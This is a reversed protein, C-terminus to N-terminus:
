NHVFIDRGSSTQITYDTDACVGNVDLVKLSHGMGKKDTYSGTLRQLCKVTMWSVNNGKTIEKKSTSGDSFTATVSVTYDGSGLNNTVRFQHEGLVAGFSPLVFLLSLATVSVAMTFIKASKGFSKKM